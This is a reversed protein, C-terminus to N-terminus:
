FCGGVERRGDNRNEAKYMENTETRASQGIEVDGGDFAIWELVAAAPRSAREILPGYAPSLPNCSFAHLIDTLLLEQHQQEHHCGLTLLPAARQWAEDDATAVFAEVHRDVYARYYAIDTCTPRTLLGRQARAHRSGLAEYYSKFRHAYTPDFPVYARAFAGLVITEFFWTTHPLYWKTPSADPMSQVTQDEASLPVALVASQARVARYMALVDNRESTAPSISVVSGAYPAPGPQVSPCPVFDALSM